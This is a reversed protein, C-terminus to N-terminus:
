LTSLRMPDSIALWCCRCHCIIRVASAAIPVAATDIGADDDESVCEGHPAFSTAGFMVTGAHPAALKAVPIFGANEVPM